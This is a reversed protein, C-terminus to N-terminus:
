AAVTLPRRRAYPFRPGGTALPLLPGAVNVQGASATIRIANSEVTKTVPCDYIGGSRNIRWAEASHVRVGASLASSRRTHILLAGARCRTPPCHHAVVWIM